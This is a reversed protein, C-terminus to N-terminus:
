IPTARAPLATWTGDPCNSSHAQIQDIPGVITTVFLIREYDEIHVVATKDHRLGILEEIALLQPRAYRGTSPEDVFL